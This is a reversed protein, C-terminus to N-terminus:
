ECVEGDLACLMSSTVEDLKIIKEGKHDKLFTKADKLNKFPILEHGMPGLVDSRIVYYAKKGDIANQTYYDTVLINYNPKIHYKKPNKLYKLMDKVGDFSVHSNKYVIQAVWRPFKAVFMGCVPCKEDKKVIINAKTEKKEIRKVEWLYLAVAQAQKEKLNKCRKKIIPKLENIYKFDKLKIEKLDCKYALLKKGMPHMMKSRKKKTIAIDKQLSNQALKYAKKFDVVEGGMNKVFELADKKDKFALKSTKSMTGLVKSGVVYFADKAPILKESVVDVVKANNIDVGEINHAHALCRLSCYQTPQGNKKHSAHSTKYFKKLSMGCINCWHKSEGKQTLEPENSAMKTFPTNAHLNLTFFILIILSINFYRM